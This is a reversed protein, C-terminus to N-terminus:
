CEGAMSANNRASSCESASRRMIEEYLQDVIRARQASLEPKTDRPIVPHAPITRRGAPAAPPRVAIATSYETGLDAGLAGISIAFFGAGVAALAGRGIIRRTAGGTGARGARAIQLRM